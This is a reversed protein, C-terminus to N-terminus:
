VYRQTCHVTLRKKFSPSFDSDNIFFQVTDIAQASSYQVAKNSSINKSFVCHYFLTMSIQYDLLVWVFDAHMHITNGTSLLCISGKKTWPVFIDKLINTIASQFLSYTYIINKIYIYKLLQHRTHIWLPFLMESKALWTKYHCVPMFIKKFGEIEDRSM